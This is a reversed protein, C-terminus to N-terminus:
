ICDCPDEGTECGWQERPALLQGSSNYDRGCGECTNTFYELDIPLGCLCRGVAPIVRRGDVPDFEPPTIIDIPM